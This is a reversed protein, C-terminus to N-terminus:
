RKQRFHLWLFTGAILIGAGALKWVASEDDGTSMAFLFFHGLKKKLGFNALYFLMATMYGITANDSAGAAALGVSGLLMASGVGALYHMFTVTSERWLMLGAFATILLLLTVTSYCVRVVCVQLHNIKRACVVDRIDQNQEPMFVPALLAVGLFSLLFEIPRAVDKGQLSTINFLLPTLLFIGIASLFPLKFHHWLNVSIIKKYESM